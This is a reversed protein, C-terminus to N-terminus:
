PIGLPALRADAFHIEAHHGSDDLMIDLDGEYAHAAPTTYFMAMEEIWDSQDIRYARADDITWSGSAQAFHFHIRPHYGAETWTVDLESGGDTKVEQLDSTGHFTVGDVVLTLSSASLSVGPGTWDIPTSSSGSGGATGSPGAGGSTGCAALLVFVYKM